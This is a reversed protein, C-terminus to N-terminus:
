FLLPSFFAFHLDDGRDGGRWSEWTGM